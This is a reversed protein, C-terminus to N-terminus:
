KKRLGDVWYRFAVLKNHRWNRFKKKAIGMRVILWWRFGVCFEYRGLHTEDFEVYSIPIPEGPKIKVFADWYVSDSDPVIKLVLCMRDFDDHIGVVRCGDPLWLFDKLAEYTLGVAAVRKEDKM